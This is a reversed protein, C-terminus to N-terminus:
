EASPKFATFLFPLNLMAQVSAPDNSRGQILIAGDELTINQLVFPTRPKDPQFRLLAVPYGEHRYWDVTINNDRGKQSVQELFSQASIPLAGAHFGVIQLAVVNAEHKALWVRFDISMVTSWFGSGYRCALRVKDKLIKVRPRTIGAPLLNEELGQQVFSEAFYSNIEEEKFRIGWGERDPEPHLDGEENFAAILQCLEDKFKRSYHARDPEPPVAAEVYSAPEYRVLLVLTSGGGCFLVIFIAIALIFSRRSM